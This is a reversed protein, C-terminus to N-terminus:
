NGFFFGKGFLPKFNVAEDNESGKDHSGAKHKKYVRVFYDGAANVPNSDNDV